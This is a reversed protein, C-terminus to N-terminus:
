IGPPPRHAAVWRDFWEQDYQILGILFARSEGFLSYLHQNEKHTEHIAQDMDWHELEGAEWRDFKEHLAKLVKRWRYDYYGDILLQEWQWEPTERRKRSSM